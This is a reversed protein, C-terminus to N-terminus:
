APVLEQPKDANVKNVHEIAENVVSQKQLEIAKALMVRDAEIIPKGAEVNTQAELIFLDKTDDSTAVQHAYSQIGAVFNERVTRVNDQIDKAIRIVPKGAKSFKVSGDKATSLRLPSGLAEHAIATNGTTNTATFFPLWVTELDISWSKRSSSKNGVKPTVLQTIYGQELM